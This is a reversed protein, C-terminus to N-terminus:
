AVDKLREVATWGYTLRANVTSTQSQRESPGNHLGHSSANRGLAVQALSAGETNM